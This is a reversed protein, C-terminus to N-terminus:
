QPRKTKKVKILADQIRTQDERIKLNNKRNKRAWQLLNEESEMLGWAKLPNYLFGVSESPPTVQIHHPM